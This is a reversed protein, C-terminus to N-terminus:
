WGAEVHPRRSNWALLDALRNGADEGHRRHWIHPHRHRGITTVLLRLLVRVQRLLERGTYEVDLQRAREEVNLENIMQDVGALLAGHLEWSEPTQETRARLLRAIQEREVRAGALAEVLEAEAQGASSTVQAGVLRGFADVADAVHRLLRDLVSAIEGVYVPGEQERQVFLDVLSRCLARLTVAARELSDLGSRLIRQTQLAHRARPNFRLSEEARVLEADVWMIEQDLERAAHLWGVATVPSAGGHLEASIRLLLHYHRRALDEIAESAPQVWVPPAVVLDLLMGVGAGILTETVRGLANVSTHSVGLVLMGSIAVESVFPDVHLQHGIILSALILIGLSWWSFGLLDTFAVAVLVGVVVSLVRRVGTTLTSFLTVQVVLLATLPALIPHPTGLLAVAALYALVAAVTSRVTQVAAPRRRRVLNPVPVSPSPM